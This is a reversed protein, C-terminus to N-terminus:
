GGFTVPAKPTLLCLDAKTTDSHIHFALRFYMVQSNPDDDPFGIPDFFGQRAQLAGPAFDKPAKAGLREIAICGEHRELLQNDAPRQYVLVFDRSNIYLAAKRPKEIKVTLVVFKWGPAPNETSPAEARQITIPDATTQGLVALKCDALALNPSEQAVLPGLSALVLTWAATVPLWTSRPM